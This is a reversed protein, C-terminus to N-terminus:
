REDSREERLRLKLTPVIDINRGNGHSGYM